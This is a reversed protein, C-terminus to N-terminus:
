YGPPEPWSITAPFGSQQDIKNLALKYTAFAKFRVTDTMDLLGAIYADAMGATADNAAALLLNRRAMAATKLEEVTPVVPLPASFVGDLCSWGQAVGLGEPVGVWILSPHFMETIDGDTEFLEIVRGNEIRAYMM